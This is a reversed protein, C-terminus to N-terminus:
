RFYRKVEVEEDPNQVVEESTREQNELIHKPHKQTCVSQWAVLIPVDVVEHLAKPNRMAQMLILGQQPSLLHMAQDFAGQSVVRNARTAQLNTLPVYRLPTRRLAPKPDYDLQMTRAFPFLKCDDRQVRAIEVQAAQKQENSDFYIMDVVHKQLAYRILSCYGLRSTDYHVKVIKHRDIAGAQTATVGELGALEVEAVAPNTTGLVAVSQDAASEELLLLLYNPVITANSAQLARVMAKVTCGLTLDDGRVPPVLNVSTDQSSLFYVWTRCSKLRATREPQNWSVEPPLVTTFLSTAAEVILPHSFIDYGAQRDGPIEAEIMLIPKNSANNSASATASALSNFAFRLCGLEEHEHPELVYSPVDFSSNSTPLPMHLLSAPRNALLSPSSELCPISTLSVGPQALALM